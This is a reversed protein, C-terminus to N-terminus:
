HSLYSWGDINSYKCVNYIESFIIFLYNDGIKDNTDSIIIHLIYIICYFKYLLTYTWICVRYM